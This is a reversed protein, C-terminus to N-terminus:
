EDEIPKADLLLIPVFRSPWFCLKTGSTEDLATQCGSVTGDVLNAYIKETQRTPCPVQPPRCKSSAVRVPWPCVPKTKRLRCSIFLSLSPFPTQNGPHASANAWSGQGCPWRSLHRPMRARDKCSHLSRRHGTPTAEARRKMSPNSRSRCGDASRSATTFAPVSALARNGVTRPM